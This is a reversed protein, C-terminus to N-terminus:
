GLAPKPTTDSESSAGHQAGLMGVLFGAARVPPPAHDLAETSSDTGGGWPRARQPRM